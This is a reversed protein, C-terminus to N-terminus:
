KYATTGASATRHTPLVMASLMLTRRRGVSRGLAGSTPVASFEPDGM